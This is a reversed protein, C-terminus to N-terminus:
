PNLVMWSDRTILRRAATAVAIPWLSGGEPACVVALNDALWCFEGVCISEASGFKGLRGVMEIRTWDSLDM